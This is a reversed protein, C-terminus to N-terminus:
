DTELLEDIVTVGASLVLLLYVWVVTLFHWFTSGISALYRGARRARPEGREDLLCRALVVLAAVLHLRTCRRDPHLLVLQVPNTPLYVGAAALQAGCRWRGALFLVGLACTRSSAVADRGSRCVGGARPARERARRQERGSDRHQGLPHAASRHRDLRRQEQRVVLASTFAAFLMVVTGLFMWLGLERLHWREALEM